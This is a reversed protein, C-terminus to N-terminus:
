REVKIGGYAYSDGGVQTSKVFENEQAKLGGDTMRKYYAERGQALEEPMDCLVLNRKMVYQSLPKGDIITTEPADIRGKTFSMRPQWGEEMRKELLDKRVWRQRMGRIKSATLISAPKWPRTPKPKAPDAPSAAAYADEPYAPPETKIKSAPQNARREAERLQRQKVNRKLVALRRREKAEAMKFDIEAQKEHEYQLDAATKEQIEETVANEEM